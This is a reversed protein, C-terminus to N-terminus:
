YRNLVQAQQILDPISGDSDLRSTEVGGVGFEILRLNGWLHVTHGGIFPVWGPMGSGLSTYGMTLGGGSIFFLKGAAQLFDWGAKGDAVDCGDFYMKTKNPFLRHYNKDSYNALTGATVAEQSFFIMGSNGHTQFLVKNFTKGQTVLRSLGTELDDRSNAALTELGSNGSFRGSAQWRDVRSSADYIYLKEDAM